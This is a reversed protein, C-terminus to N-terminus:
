IKLGYGPSFPLTIGFHLRLQEPTTVIATPPPADHPYHAGLSDIVEIHDSHITIGRSNISDDSYIHLKNSPTTTGIGVNGNDKIVMRTKEVFGSDIASFRAIDVGDNYGTHVLLGPKHYGHINTIFSDNGSIYQTPYDSVELRANPETDGIGVMGNQDITMANNKVEDNATTSIIM